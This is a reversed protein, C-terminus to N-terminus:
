QKLKLTGTLRVTDSQTQSSQIPTRNLDLSAPIASSGLGTLVELKQRDAVKEETRVAAQSAENAGESPQQEVAEKESPAVELAQKLSPQSVPEVVQEASVEVPVTATPPQLEEGSSM